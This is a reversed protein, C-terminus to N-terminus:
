PDNSGISIPVSPIDIIVENLLSDLEGPEFTDSSTAIENPRWWQYRGFYQQEEPDNMLAPPEFEVSPVLFFREHQLYPEGEFDFRHSRYWIESAIKWYQDAVEECLERQLGAM